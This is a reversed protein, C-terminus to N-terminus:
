VGDKDMCYVFLTKANVSGYCHQLCKAIKSDEQVLSPKNKNVSKESIFFACAFVFAKRKINSLCISATSIYSWEYKVEAISSDSHVVENQQWKVRLSFGGVAWSGMSCATLHAGFNGPSRPGSFCIQTKASFVVRHKWDM